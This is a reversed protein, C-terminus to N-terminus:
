GFHHLVHRALLDADMPRGFLYGQASACGLARLLAAQNDTEVGEAVVDLALAAAVLLTAKVLSLRVHDDALKPVLSRDIKVTTIPLEHLCSLSSYGVGFDDLSLSVGLGRLAQLTQLAGPDILALSETLELQLQGPQLGAEEIAAAVDQVLMGSQLQARSLNVAVRPPARDGLQQQWAKMQLCASRLVHRGIDVIMGNDEAVPIFDLPAIRGRQPHLWRVLAEVSRLRGTGLDVIPQYDLHFEGRDLGLRMDRHLNMAQVAQEHLRQNFVAHRNRGLRKAEYMATDADRLVAEPTESSLEHTVLGISTSLPVSMADVAYPQALEKLLSRALQEAHGPDTLGTLLVVFEDGGMRAAVREAAGHPRLTQDLRLTARLRRAVQRLVEDGAGHGLGDNVLKFRDLDMYLVAFRQAPDALTATLKDMLYARNPLGTLADTQAAQRLRAEMQKRGTSVTRIALYETITGHDDTIPVITTDVWYLSGDKARNCIEGQWSEGSRLTRWLAQWFARPHHGSNVIRHTQGILEARTYQSVECFRDNVQQIRGAPDTIAVIAHEFLARQYGSQARHAMETRGGAAEVLELAQRPWAKQLGHDSTRLM